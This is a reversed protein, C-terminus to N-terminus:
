AWDRPFIVEGDGEGHDDEVEEFRPPEELRDSLYGFLAVAVEARSDLLRVVLRVKIRCAGSGRELEDGAVWVKGVGNDFIKEVSPCTEELSAPFM